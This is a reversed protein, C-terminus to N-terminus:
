LQLRDLRGNFAIHIQLADEADIVLDAVAELADAHRVINIRIRTALIELREDRLRLLAGCHVVYDSVRRVHGHCHLSLALDASSACGNTLDSSYHDTGAVGAEGHAPAQGFAADVM